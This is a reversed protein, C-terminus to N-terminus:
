APAPSAVTSRGPPDGGVPRAPRSVALVRGPPLRPSASLPMDRGKFASESVGPSPRQGQGSLALRTIRRGPCHPRCRPRPRRRRAPAAAPASTSPWTTATPKAAPAPLRCSRNIGTSVSASADLRSAGAQVPRRPRQAPSGPPASPPSGCGRPALERRHDRLRITLHRDSDSTICRKSNWDLSSSPSRFPRRGHRLGAQNVKGPQM